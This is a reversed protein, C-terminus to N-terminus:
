QISPVQQVGGGQERGGPVLFTVLGPLPPRTIGMSLCFDTLRAHFLLGWRSFPESVCFDTLEVGLLTKGKVFLLRDVLCGVGGWAFTKSM